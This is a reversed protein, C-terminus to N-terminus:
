NQLGVSRRAIARISNPQDTQAGIAHVNVQPVMTVVPAPTTQARGQMNAQPAPAFSAFQALFPTLQEMVQKTVQAALDGPDVPTTNSVAARLQGGLVNIPTQLAQMKANRDMTQNMLVRDYESRIQAFVADLPHAPAHVPAATVVPAPAPATVPTTTDSMTALDGTKAYAALTVMARAAVNDKFDAVANKIAAPKDSVQESESELITDMVCELMNWMDWIHFYENRAEQYKIADTVTLAGGYASYSRTTASVSETVTENVADPAGSVPETTGDVDSRVVTAESRTVKGKSRKDLEDALEEGVITAADDRQTTMSREELGVETGSNAPVRTLGLHILQGKVFEVEDGPYEECYLCLDDISSRVFISKDSHVHEWDIFAISMRIRADSPVNEIIDRKVAEYTKKAVVPNIPNDFVGKAKFKLGSIYLEEAWGASAFGDLDLYHSISVYPMGGQWFASRFQEPILENNKIRQIFDRYLSLSMRTNFADKSTNSAVATWRMQKTQPDYNAKTIFMSSEVYSKAHGLLTTPM